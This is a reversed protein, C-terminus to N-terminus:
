SITVSYLTNCMEDAVHQTSPNGGPDTEIPNSPNIM